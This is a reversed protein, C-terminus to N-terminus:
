SHVAIRNFFMTWNKKKKGIQTKYKLFLMHLIVTNELSSSLLRLHLKCVVRVSRIIKVWLSLMTSKKTYAIFFVTIQM